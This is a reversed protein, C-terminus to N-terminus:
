APATSPRKVRVELQATTWERSPYSAPNLNRTSPREAALAQLMDELPDSDLGRMLGRQLVPQDLSPLELWHFNAAGRAAIVKILDAGEEYGEPLGAQLPIVVEQGPDFPAHWDQGAPYVQSIGWDPQLDMVVVNVVQSSMNKVRLFTWDGVPIVPTNGPADFPTPEPADAPDYEKQVGMLEVLLKGALPSMPDRNDLGLTAHYRSLHVLRSVVKAAAGREDIRVPPRLRNIPAGARDLIEYEGAGNVAVQYEAAETGQALEVWGAGEMADKLADLAARQDADGPEEEPGLLRVKRVLKISSPNILVAQAGPEVPAPRLSEYDAWSETAGLQSITALAIRQDLRSLDAAGLAYVAFQAGGRMGQAQGTALLVRKREADVKMVTVAYEPRVRGSGFLVRDGEGQLQPTQREFDGHVKAVIRDHVQKYSINLGLTEISDLLWHTLAGNSEEEGEFVSEHALESPSCAALLVYGQPEPLSGSGLSVNRTEGATVERWTEALEELPAVLSDQPAPRDDEVEVGRVRVGFGRTAGGSHCSDFVVTVVLEKDALDKLLRAIEVDRLYRGEDGGIDTPVLSEDKGNAGKVHPVITKSRGGHGSYHIYVQDGPRAVEGLRQFARVINTYTPWQERPETPEDGGADTATLKFIRDDPVGLTDRLFKEMRSVDRVCGALNRYSLGGPLENPMYCDIGVLLCYLDSQNARQESM